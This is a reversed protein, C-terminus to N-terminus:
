HHREPLPPPVFANKGALRRPPLDTQEPAYLMKPHITPFYGSKVGDEHWKKMSSNAMSDYRTVALIM